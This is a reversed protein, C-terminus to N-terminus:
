ATSLSLTIISRAIPNKGDIVVWKGTDRLECGLTRLDLLYPGEMIITKLLDEFEYYTDPNL